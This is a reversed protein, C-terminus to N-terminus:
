ALVSAYLDQHLRATAAANYLRAREKAAAAYQARLADNAFLTQIGQELASVDAPRVTIGTLGHISVEPVASEIETNIVPLGAAMAELQVLGFSEARTISPMVFIDAAHLYPEVADVFGLFQVRERVGASVAVAELHQRLPGRGILLLTGPVDRMARLLYEFGKYPVLRGATVLLPGEFKARIKRAEDLVSASPEPVDLGLPIIRCKDRFPRLEDSSDAYRASSVVIADAREMARRNFPDTLRRLAKRNLTDGHHTIILRGPHRSLLFAAAAAPNPVHLHVLDDSRGRLQGFLGPTIPMSAVAGFTKLRTVTAGDLRETVTRVCDNSVLVSVDAWESQYGVLSRLHTEMGGPHPPYFKGIHLISPRKM